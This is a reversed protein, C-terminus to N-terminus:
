RSWCGASSAGDTGTPLTIRVLGAAPVGASFPEVTFTITDLPGGAVVVVVVGGVVVVM